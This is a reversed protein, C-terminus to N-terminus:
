EECNKSSGELSGESNSDNRGSMGQSTGHHLSANPIRLSHLTITRLTLDYTPFRVSDIQPNSIVFAYCADVTTLKNDYRMCKKCDYIRIFVNVRDYSTFLM